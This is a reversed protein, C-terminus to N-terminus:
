TPGTGTQFNQFLSFEREGAPFLVGYRGVCLRPVIDFVLDIDTVYEETQTVRFQARIGVDHKM